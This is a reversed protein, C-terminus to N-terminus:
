NAALLKHMYDDLEEASIGGVVEAVENGQSDFMCTMPIASVGVARAMSQSNPDDVNLRQFDVRGAYKARCEEIIPGYSRCPGCWDAYFEIVRPRHSSRVDAVISALRKSKVEKVNANIVFYGGVALAAV